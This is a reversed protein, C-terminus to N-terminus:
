FRTTLTMGYTTPPGVISARGFGTDPTGYILPREDTLNRGWVFLDFRESSIGVHANLLNYAPQELTNQIDTFQDGFARWEGRGVLRWTGNLPLTYQAALMSTYEPANSLRNGDVPVPEGFFSRLTFDKYETDNWGGAFELQLGPVPLWTAELEVGQSLADGVNSRIFTGPQVQSFFQLDTWDIRFVAASIQLKRNATAYKAGIEFNDSYEPDFTQSVGPPVVQTNVGGPRYGRTYSAYVSGQTTFQYAVAVKPSLASYSGRYTATSATGVSGAVIANTGVTSERDENDYRLGATITLKDVVVYSGQGYVAIGQNEGDNTAIALAGPFFPSDLVTNTTPEFSNQWFGFVGVTYQFSAAPNTSTLKFEQTVVQQPKSEGGIRGDAGYSWYINGGGFDLDSFAIGIRQYSTVSALTFGTGYYNAALSSNFLNRQHQTIRSLFIKDPNARALSETPVSTYFSSNDSADVQAKANATIRWNSNPLWTLTLSGYTSTEDGVRQGNADAQPNITGTTDNTLYGEQRNYLAAIGLFVKDPVIPSRFAVSYRRLGFNGLSVEAGGGPINGPQKTTINVVGGMANRGFLTGQPGRLVEIREIDNLQVGNAIIDLNNVGDMYTAVAANESFVQIGRISQIQQFSVGLSQYYYNPILGPLDALQWTRTDQIRAASLATVAVTSQHLSQERREASVVVEDLAVEQTALTITLNSPNSALVVQLAYGAKTVSLQVSTGAVDLWFSGDAATITQNPANLVRVVAGAVPQGDANLVTGSIQGHASYAWLVGLLGVVLARKICQM